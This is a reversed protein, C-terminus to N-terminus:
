TNLWLRRRLLLLPSPATMLLLPPGQSTVLLRRLLAGRRLLTPVRATRETLEPRQLHLHGMVLPAGLTVHESEM